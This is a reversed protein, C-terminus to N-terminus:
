AARARAGAVRASGMVVLAIGAAAVAGVVLLQLAVRALKDFLGEGGGGQDATADGAGPLADGGDLGRYKRAKALVQGAYPASTSGYYRGLANRPNRNFGLDRLYRAAGEVQSRIARPSSGRQVGYRRATSPIFQTLGFAGASSVANPDGGSEQEILGLIVSGPIGYKAGARRAEGAWRLVRNPPAM